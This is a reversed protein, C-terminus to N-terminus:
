DGCGECRAAIKLDVVLNLVKSLTKKGFFSGYSVAPYVFCPQIDTELRNRCRVISVLTNSM